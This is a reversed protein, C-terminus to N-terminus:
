VCRSTYLLCNYLQTETNENAFETLDGSITVQYQKDSRLISAPSDEFYVDAIDTLGVSGGTGNSLVIGKVKDLTDYEDEPYEVMVSVDEGNVELTTAETGSLMSNVTAAVQVPVMGEAAAQVPDQRKYVDLHTYSVPTGIVGIKGNRTAAAASKAGAQIVGIIPLHTYSVSNSTKGKGMLVM